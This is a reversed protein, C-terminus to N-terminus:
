QNSCLRLYEKQREEESPYSLLIGRLPGIFVFLSGAAAASARAESQVQILDAICSAGGSAILPIKVAAAMEAIVDLDYGSLSGDRDIDNLLLEGAGESEVARAFEIPSMAGMKRGHLYFVQLQNRRRIDVSVVVSQSGVSHASQSIVKMDRHAVTGLVVKEIGCQIVREVDEVDRIGGGYALPMFAASAIQRIHSINPGQKKLSAGIDLLALEDVSKENFIRVANIPDGLYVPRQFARTKVLRKEDILLVAIIRLEAPVTLM